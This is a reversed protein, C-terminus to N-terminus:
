DDDRGGGHHLVRVQWASLRDDARSAGTLVDRWARWHRDVAPWEDRAAFEKLLGHFAACRDRLPANPDYAVGTLIVLGQQDGAQLLGQATLVRRAPDPGFGMLEEAAEKILRHNGHRQAVELRLEAAWPEHPLEDSVEQAEPIDGRGLSGMVRLWAAYRRNRDTDLVAAVDESWPARIPPLCAALRAFAAMEAEPGGGLALDELEALAEDHDTGDLDLLATARIRRLAEDSADAVFRLALEPAAARLAADALVEAGGAAGVEEPRAQELVGRAREPERQVAFVDAALMLMRGSEEWRRMEILEERLALADDRAHEAELLNFPGDESFAVRARHVRLNIDMARVAVSDPDLERAGALHRAAGDLDPAQMLALAKHGEILAALQPDDSHLEELVALRDSVPATQDVRELRLRPSDPDLRDAEALLRDRRDADGAVGADIAARVVLDARESEAHRDAYRRWGASAALWDGASEALRIVANVLENSGRDLELPWGRILESAQSPDPPDGIKVLLWELEDPHADALERLAKLSWTPATDALRLGFAVSASPGAPAAEPTTPVVISHRVAIEERRLRDAADEHARKMEVVQEVTYGQEPDDIVTSHAPCMIVLNAYSHRREILGAWRELEEETFSSVSRAVSPHDRQAVIHCEIGVITDESRDPTPRLLEQDCGPFACVGRARTWLRKRTHETISGAV